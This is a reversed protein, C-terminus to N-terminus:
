GDGKEDSHDIHGCFYTASQTHEIGIFEELVYTVVAHAEIATLPTDLGPYEENLIDHISQSFITVLDKDDPNKLKRHNPHNPFEIINSVQTFAKHRDKVFRKGFENM